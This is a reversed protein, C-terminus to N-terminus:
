YRSQQRRIEYIRKSAELADGLTEIGNYRLLDFMKALVDATARADGLATHRLEPPITVNFREAVADLTHQDTHDHVIASLLVTDLVPNEFRIGTAEEKLELFRLDFAANHAVLVADGVFDRFRPLVTLIDPADAVMDDSIHHVATSRPPIPRGPNVFQDFIEGNLVRGNVVRIGAISIIEDGNSPELGTTETDFVVYTLQDLRASALDSPTPRDILDFDFFEFRIPLGEVVKDVHDDVPPLLPIRLCARKDALCTLRLNSRHLDLVDKVSLGTPTDPLPKDLWATVREGAPLDGSWVLSIHPRRQMPEAMVAFTTAGNEEVLSMILANLLEVIIHSDCHLWCAEGTIDCTIVPNDRYRGTVISLLNASFVDSMPWHSGALQDYRDTLRALTSDLAQSADIIRAGIEATDPPLSPGDSLDRAAQSLEAVPTSLTEMTERLLKEIGAQRDIEGTDADFTLVYGDIIPFDGDDTVMLNMKGQLVESGDNTAFVLRASLGDKHCRYRGSTLRNTLRDLTNVFPRRGVLKFLSRALGIDGATHLISLARRNYLLVEHNRNCVVVAEHLTHLVAELRQRQAIATKTAEAIRRESESRESRLETAIDEVTQGLAGLHRANSTSVAHDPNSHLLTQLDRSISMVPKAVNLDFLHWIYLTLGILAFSAIGGFLVLPPVPNGELRQAALTLSVGIVLPAALALLLFFLLIRTKLSLESM